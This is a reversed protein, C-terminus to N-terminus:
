QRFVRAPLVGYRGARGDGRINRVSVRDRTGCENSSRDDLKRGDEFQVDGRLEAGQERLIEGPVGTYSSDARPVHGPWVRFDATGVQVCM